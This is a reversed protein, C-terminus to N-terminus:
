DEVLGKGMGVVEDIQFGNIINDNGRLRSDLGREGDGRGQHSLVLTLPSKKIKGM